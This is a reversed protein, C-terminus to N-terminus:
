GLQKRATDWDKLKRGKLDFYGAYRGGETAMPVLHYFDKLTRAIGVITYKKTQNNLDIESQYRRVEVARAEGSNWLIEVAGEEDLREGILSEFALVPYKGVGQFCRIKERLNPITKVNGIYQSDECNGSDRAQESRFAHIEITV